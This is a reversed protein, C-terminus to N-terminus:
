LIYVVVQTGVSLINQFVLTKVAKLRKVGTCTPGSYPQSVQHWSAYMFYPPMIFNTHCWVLRFKTWVILVHNSTHSTGREMRKPRIPFGGGKWCCVRLDYCCDHCLDKEVAGGMSNYLKFMVIRAHERWTKKKRKVRREWSASCDPAQSFLLVSTLLSKRRQLSAKGRNEKRLTLNSLILTKRGSNVRSHFTWSATKSDVFCTKLSKHSKGTHVKLGLQKTVSLSNKLQVLARTSPPLPLLHLLLLMNWWWVAQSCGKKM